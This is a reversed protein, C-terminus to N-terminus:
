RPLVSTSFAARSLPPADSPVHEASPWVRVSGGALECHVIRWGREVHGDRASPDAVLLGAACRPGPADGPSIEEFWAVRGSAAMTVRHKAKAFSRGAGNAFTVRASAGLDARDVPERTGAQVIRAGEAFRGVYQEVDGNAAAQALEDVARTAEM